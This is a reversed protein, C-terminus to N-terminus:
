KDKLKVDHFYSLFIWKLPDLPVENNNVSRLYTLLEEETHFFSDKIDSLNDCMMTSLWSSPVLGGDSWILVPKGTNIATTLEEGSGMSFTRPLYCVIFDSSHVYRLDVDRIWRMGNYYEIDGITIYSEGKLDLDNIVELFKGKSAESAITPAWTPKKMPDYVKVGMENLSKSVRDRWSTPDNSQEIPGILYCKTGNLLNM